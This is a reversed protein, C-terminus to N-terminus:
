LNEPSKKELEVLLRAHINDFGGNSLIAVVDNPQLLPLLRDLITDTDPCSQAQLGRTMLDKALQQASFLDKEPIGDLPMPERILTLDSSDFCPIYDQQFIARRSSNTRPEFITILRQGAYAAKLAQLTERVATPHHAFDDIVTITNVIGRVEQRRKIGGFQSLGQKTLNPSVGIRHLVAAVALSNLCNHRGPLRVTLDAWEQGQFRAKFRTSGGEAHVEALSWDLSKDFGYGQVECPAQQVVEAVNADELHAVILGNAPLLSVFKKFSRKIADLDAFIDAHDFEVSTIIAIDPRYHLFKSEKDFFATDYEDGESVFHPGTGLHFNADFDRVIGGIMFTPDLGAQHLCSALLSSTTTKGHTGTVVLSTRSKIFFHALAQPFSLYPIKAHALAMAEPNKRTIVNGVIVLDPRPNLNEEGYGDMPHIGIGDLFLSMPPYVAKDSGTVSYGSSKLMGALAAMGTGCIGMIHIHRIPDPAQNLDASLEM